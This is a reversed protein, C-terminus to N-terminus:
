RNWSGKSATDALKSNDSLFHKVAYTQSFLSKSESIVNKIDVPSEEAKTAVYICASVVFFPDTECYYFRRFLITARAIVRQRLSLKKGLGTIVTLATLIIGPDRKGCRREIWLGDIAAIM